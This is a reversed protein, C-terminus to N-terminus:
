GTLFTPFHTNIRRCLMLIYRHHESPSRVRCRVYLELRVCLVGYIRIAFSCARQTVECVSCLICSQFGSGMGWGMWEVGLWAWGGVGGGICEMGEMVTPLLSRLDKVVALSRMLNFRLTKRAPPQPM